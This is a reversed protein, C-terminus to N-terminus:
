SDSSSGESHILFSYSDLTHIVLIQIKLIQKMLFEYPFTLTHVKLCGGGGLFFSKEFPFTSMQQLSFNTVAILHNQQHM